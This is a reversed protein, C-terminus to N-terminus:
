RCEKLSVLFAKMDKVNVNDFTKSWVLASELYFCKLEAACKDVTLKEIRRLLRLEEDVKASMVKTLEDRLEDVPCANKLFLDCMNLSVM